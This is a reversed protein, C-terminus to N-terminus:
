NAAALKQANRRPWRLWVMLAIWALSGAIVLALAMRHNGAPFKFLDAILILLSAVFYLLWLRRRRVLPAMMLVLLSFYGCHLKPSLLLVATTLLSMDEFLGLPKWVIYALTLVVGVVLVASYTDLVRETPPGEIKSWLAGPSIGGFQFPHQTDTKGFDWFVASEGAALLFPAFVLGFV